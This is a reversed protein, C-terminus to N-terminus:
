NLAFVKEISWKNEERRAVAILRDDNYIALCTDQGTVASSPEQSLKSRRVINFLVNQRGTFLAQTEENTAVARDYGDLMRDFPVWCPLHDWASGELTAENIKDVTWAREVNFAGSASRKLSELMAVSGLKRGLDQALTRVYTGSSCTLRFASKGAEYDLIEFDYLKCLKPDREVEIGARALEYLPKGNKKKASHMPPTQLYPEKCFFAAGERVEEISRPLTDSTETIEATPDGPITTKGFVITGEYKKTGGLFYRALKVARGVCVVLLGTAFPDITGGHGIKPLDRRKLQKQETLQKQLVEIIGFSSIGQHKDILLAGNM